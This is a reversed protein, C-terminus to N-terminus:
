EQRVDKDVGSRPVIISVCLGDNRNTIDINGHFNKQMIVKSMHLGLGTGKGKSKTTFYPEFVDKIISEDIGGANDQIQVVQMSGKSFIRIDIRRHNLRKEILADIANQIINFIVQSYQNAHGYLMGDEVVHINLGIEYLRLYEELFNITSEINSKVSFMEEQSKPNFFYRFDDITQSMRNILKNSKHVLDELYEETLEGYQYADQINSFILGLGSLPQRWQHAINGIMEGMAALRSQFIMLAEKKNNEDVEKQFMKELEINIRELDLTIRNKNEIDSYYTSTKKRDYYIDINKQKSGVSIETAVQNIIKRFREESRKLAEEQIKRNTIDRSVLILKLQNELKFLHANVEVPISKGTSTILIDEFIMSQNKKLTEVMHKFKEMNSYKSIDLYSMKLFTLKDYDLSKCAKKNVELFETPLNNEDLNLVFVCDSGSNFLREYKEKNRILQIELSKRQEIDKELEMNLKNVQKLLSAEKELQRKDKKIKYIYFMCSIFILIVITIVIVTEYTQNRIFKTMEGYDMSVTVIWFQDGIRAPSYASFKKVRKKHKDHYWISHYIGVGSEGNMQKQVLAELESWDYDPFEEKRARMVHRGIDEKKPHMLLVGYRDKVSAYGKGTRIPKVFQDYIKDLKVQICLIAEIKSDYFVPEYLRIFFQGDFSYVNSVVSSKMKIVRQIDDFLYPHISLDNKPYQDIVQANVGLLQIKDINDEQIIYYEELSNFKTNLGHSLIYKEFQEKFLKNKTIIQLNESHYDFYRELSRSVSESITLLQQQEKSILHDRINKYNIYFAVIIIIVGILTALILKILDDLEKKEEM